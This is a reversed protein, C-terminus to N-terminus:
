EVPFIDINGVVRQLILSSDYATISGNGDVDAASLIIDNETINGVVYQLILSADYASVSGDGNVDGYTVGSTDKKVTLVFAAPSLQFYGDEGMSSIYYTGPELTDPLTVKGDDDSTGFNTWEDLKQGYFDDASIYYADVYPLVETPTEQGYITITKNLTLELAEGQTVTAKDRTGNEDAFFSYETGFAESEEDILHVNIAIGDEMKQQDSTSGWNPGGLPYAYDLFYNLNTSGNWFNMFSSGAGQTWSVYKFIDAQGDDNGDFGKGADEPDLGLMFLETAYIFVHMGTVVGEATVKTGPEQAGGTYCDPNYYYHELGYLAIDFYPVNLERVLFQHYTKTTYFGDIGHSITMTVDVTGNKNTDGQLSSSAIVGSPLASVILIIALMFTLSRKFTTKKSM